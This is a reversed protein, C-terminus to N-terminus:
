KRIKWSFDLKEEVKGRAGSIMGREGWSAGPKFSTTAINKHEIITENM